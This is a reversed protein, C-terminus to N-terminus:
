GLEVLGIYGGAPGAWRYDNGSDEWVESGSNWDYTGGAQCKAWVAATIETQNADPVGTKLDWARGDPQLWYYGPGVKVCGKYTGRTILAGNKITQYDANSLVRPPDSGNGM